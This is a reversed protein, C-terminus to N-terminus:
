KETGTPVPVPKIIVSAPQEAMVRAAPDATPEPEVFLLDSHDTFKPVLYHLSGHEGIVRVSFSVHQEIEIYHPVAAFGADDAEIVEVYMQGNLTNQLRVECVAKPPAQMLTLKGDAYEIQM